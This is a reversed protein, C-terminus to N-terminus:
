PMAEVKRDGAECALFRAIRLAETKGHVFFPAIQTALVGAQEASHEGRSLRETLWRTWRELSTGFVPALVSVDERLLFTQRSALGPEAVRAVLEELADVGPAGDIAPDWKLAVEVPVGGRKDLRLALADRGAETKAKTDLLDHLDRFLLGAPHKTHAFLIAGSTTIRGAAAPDSLEALVEQGRLRELYRARIARAVAVAARPDALLIVDDGGAYVLQPHRGLLESLGLNALNLNQGKASRLEDAFAALARSIAAHFERARGPRIEAEWGLIEGMKDGDLAVLAFYPFREDRRNKDEDKQIQPEFEQFSYFRVRRDRLKPTLRKTACVLCLRTQDLRFYDEDDGAKEAARGWASKVNERIGDPLATREGCVACKDWTEEIPLFPRFQRSLAFLEAGARSAAAYDEGLPVFSWAIEFLTDTQRGTGTPQWISPAIVFGYPETTLLGVTRTVLGDWAHRVATEMARATEAATALPVEAVFRNPLGKPLNGPEAAPFVLSGGRRGLEGIATEVLHSLLDSGAWLDAVRRAQSIFSQVPGLSFTLLARDTVAAV